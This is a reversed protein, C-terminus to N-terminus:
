DEATARVSGRVENEGAAERYSAEDLREVSQILCRERGVVVYEGVHGCIRGGFGGGGFLLDPSMGVAFCSTALNVRYKRQGTDVLLTNSDVDTWSRARSPDLCESPHLTAKTALPETPGTACAALALPALLALLIPCAHRM